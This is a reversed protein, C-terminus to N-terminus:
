SSRRRAAPSACSVRTTSVAWIAPACGVTATLAASTAEPNNWDRRLRRGGRVLVEGDDAIRVEVGPLPRGVTGIKTASPRNVTVAPSTETLGYGGTPHHRRRPLFARAAGGAAGWRRDGYPMTRRARRAVKPVGRRRLGRAGAAVASGPRAAHGVGPQVARGRRRRRLVALGPARGRGRAPGPQADERVRPAGRPHVDPPVRPDPGAGRWPRRQAGHDGAHVGNGGPNAPRVRAGAAPVPRDVCGSAVVGAVGRRCWRRRVPRQPPDARLGEAPRDHRQHLRDDGGAGSVAERRAQVQTEDVVRGAGVLAILDGADIQWIRGLAPLRDRLGTLLAAHGGTEVVCGVAGSDVLIWEVQDASSTDYVPVTVAGISWLAYDVLTWEYRTRSMLRVRDGHGVGAAIFGRAVTLVDDRFQLCTVPLPGGQLSRGAPWSRTVPDPRVFQVAEPAERANEWVMEALGPVRHRHGDAGGDRGARGSGRESCRREAPM